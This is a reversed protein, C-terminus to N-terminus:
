GPGFGVQQPDSSIGKSGPAFVLSDAVDDFKFGTTPHESVIRCKASAAIIDAGAQSSHLASLMHHKVALLGFSNQNGADKMLAHEWLSVGKVIVVIFLGMGAPKYPSVANLRAASYVSLEYVSLEGVGRM